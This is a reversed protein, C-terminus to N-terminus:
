KVFKTRWTPKKSKGNNVKPKDPMESAYDKAVVTVEPLRRPWNEEMRIKNEFEADLRKRGKPGALFYKLDFKTPSTGEGFGSFGKMKFPTKM